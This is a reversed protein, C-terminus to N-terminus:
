GGLRPLHKKFHIQEFVIRRRAGVLHFTRFSVAGSTLSRCDELMRIEASGEAQDTQVGGPQLMWRSRLAVSIRETSVKRRTAM